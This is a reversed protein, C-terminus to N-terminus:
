FKHFFYATPMMTDNAKKKEQWAPFDAVSHRLTVLSDMSWFATHCNCTKITTAFNIHVYYWSCPPAVNYCM